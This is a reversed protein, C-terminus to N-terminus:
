FVQTIFYTIGGMLLGIFIGIPLTIRLVAGDQGKLGVTSCGVLIKAPSIMSGLAGGTTQAAVLWFPNLGLLLATNKQLSAFLVNSNNNSGTAFAGLMGVWPSVIPYFRQLAQSFGKALLLTMGCHDMLTSVGVAAIVGISAPISSRWTTKAASSISGPAFLSFRSYFIATLIAAVTLGTFPHLIPRFVQGSGAPTIFGQLTVVEPFLPTLVVSNALTHIPGPLALVVFLATLGLYSALAAKLATTFGNERRVNVDRSYRSLVRAMIIGMAGAGVVSLQPLGALVIFYQGLSVVVALIVVKKWTKKEGLIVASGIGSLLCVIGLLIASPGALGAPDMQSVGLLTQFVVGMSGFTVAWTHGVAVAAVATLPPIGLVVLMPATVAVPLGFGALGELLGSFIWAMMVLMLSRDGIFEELGRAIARIGGAENVLYYLFLAPWMVILVFM